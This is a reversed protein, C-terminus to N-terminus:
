KKKERTEPIEKRESTPRTTLFPDDTGRFIKKWKLDSHEKGGVKYIQSKRTAVRIIIFLPLGRIRSVERVTAVRREGLVVVVRAVHCRSREM